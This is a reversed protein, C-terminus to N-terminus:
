RTYRRRSTPSNYDTDYNGLSSLPIIYRTKKIFNGKVMQILETYEDQTLDKEIETHAMLGKSKITLIYSDDWSRIRVVPELSIYGQSVAHHEYDNLNDPLQNILFKREIEM